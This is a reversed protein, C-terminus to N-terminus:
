IIIIYIIIYLFFFSRPDPGFCLLLFIFTRYFLRLKVVASSLILFAFKNCEHVVDHVRTCMYIEGSKQYNVPIQSNQM